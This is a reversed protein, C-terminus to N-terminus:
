MAQLLQPNRLFVDLRKLEQPSFHGEKLAKIQAIRSEETLELDSHLREIQSKISTVRQNWNQAKDQAALLRQGAEEGFEASFRALRQERSLSASESKIQQVKRIDISPQLSAKMDDPLQAINDELLQQKQDSTLSKDQEIRLRALAMEDYLQQEGFLAVIEEQSFYDLRLNQIAFLKSEMDDSSFPKAEGVAEKVSALATKYDIYRGFLALLRESAKATLKMEKLDSELANILVEREKSESRAIVGDFLLLTESSLTYENLVAQAAGQQSHHTLLSQSDSQSVSQSLTDTKQAASPLSENSNQSILFYGGVVATVLVLVKVKM